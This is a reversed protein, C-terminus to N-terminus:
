MALPHLGALAGAIARLNERSQENRLATGLADAVRQPSALRTQALLVVSCWRAGSDTPNMAEAAVLDIHQPDELALGHRAMRTAEDWPLGLVRSVVATLYLDRAEGDLILSRIVTDDVSPAGVKALIGASNVRLIESGRVMWRHLSAISGLDKAALRAIARDTDHTTQVTSLLRTREAAIDRMVDIAVEPAAVDPVAVSSGAMDPVAAATVASVMGLLLVRRNVDDGLAREYARILAPTVERVGKEVNGLYSRSYGTRQAMGSLSLRAAIRAQRLKM